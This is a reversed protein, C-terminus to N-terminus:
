KKGGPPHSPPRHPRAGEKAQLRATALYQLEDKRRHNEWHLPQLNTLDDNGGQDVPIVHDIEWGYRSEVNGFDDRVITWGWADVRLTAYSGLPHAKRWVAEIMEGSFPRGEADTNRARGM